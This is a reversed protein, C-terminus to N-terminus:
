SYHSLIKDWFSRISAEDGIYYYEPVVDLYDCHSMDIKQVNPLMTLAFINQLADCYTLDIEKLNQLVNMGELSKLQRCNELIIKKLNPIPVMGKLHELSCESLDLKTLKKLSTLPSFDNLFYSGSVELEKLSKLHELGTLSALKSCFVINLVSLKKIKGLESIDELSACDLLHLEKISSKSLIEALQPAFRQKGKLSVTLKHVYKLVPSYSCSDNGENDKHVVDLISIFGLNKDVSYHTKKQLVRGDAAIVLSRLEKPYKALKKQALDFVDKLSDDYATPFHQAISDWTKQSPRKNLEKILLEKEM